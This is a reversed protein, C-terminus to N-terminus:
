SSKDPHGPTPPQHKLDKQRHEFENYYRSGNRTYILVAAAALAASSWWLFLLFYRYAPLRPTLDPALLTAVVMSLQAATCLKGISVPVIKLESTLFYLILFGLTIYLDKGIIVAVITSPLRAGPIATSDIALLLSACTILLKDALPDLFTGLMTVRRYKRALYGDLGDSLAMLLFILLALYRAWPQYEPRNIQLMAVVFPLILLIRAVTIRNPWSMRLKTM